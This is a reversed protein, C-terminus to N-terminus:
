PTFLQPTGSHSLRNFTRSRSLGHDWSRHTWARCGARHQCSLAQLRSRIWHRGRERDKGQKCETDREFIFMLFNKWSILIFFCYFFGDVAWCLLVHSMVLLAYCVAVLLLLVLTHKLCGELNSFDMNPCLFFVHGWFHPWSCFDPKERLHAM